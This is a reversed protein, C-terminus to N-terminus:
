STGCRTAKRWAPCPWCTRCTSTWTPGGSRSLAATWTQAWTANPPLKPTYQPLNKLRRHLVEFNRYRCLNQKRTLLFPQLAELGNLLLPVKVLLGPSLYQSAKRPEQIAPSAQKQASYSFSLVNRTQYKFSLLHKSKPLTHFLSSSPLRLPDDGFTTFLDSYTVVDTVRREAFTLTRSPFSPFRNAHPCINHLVWAACTCRRIHTAQAKVPQSKEDAEGCTASLGV